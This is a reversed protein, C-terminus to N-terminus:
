HRYFNGISAVMAKASNRGFEGGGVFVAPVALAQRRELVMPDHAVCNDIALNLGGLPDSVQM